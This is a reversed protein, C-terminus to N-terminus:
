MVCEIPQQLVRVIGGVYRAFYWIVTWSGCTPPLLRDGLDGNPLRFEIKPRNSFLSSSMEQLLIMGYIRARSAMCVDLIAVDYCLSMIRIFHIKGKLSCSGGHDIQIYFCFFGFIQFFVGGLLVSNRTVSTNYTRVHM